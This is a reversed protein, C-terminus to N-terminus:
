PAAPYYTGVNITGDPLTFARYEIVRGEVTVRGWFAGTESAEKVAQQVHKAIASEAAESTLGTGELHRAGHAAKITVQRLGAAAEEGFRAAGRATEPLLEASGSTLRALGSVAARAGQSISGAAREATLVLWEGTAEVVAGGAVVLTGIGVAETAGWLREAFSNRLDMSVAAGDVAAEIGFTRATSDVLPGGTTLTGSIAIEAVNRWGRGNSGLDVDKHYNLGVRQSIPMFGDPDLMNIPDNGSYAYLNWLAPLRLDPVVTDPTLFRTLSDSYQRAGFDYLGTVPDRHKGQYSGELEACPPATKLGGFPFYEYAGLVNGDEDLTLLTSGRHDPVHWRITSGTAPDVLYFYDTMTAYAGSDTYSTAITSPDLTVFSLPPGGVDRRVRFSMSCSAAPSWTLAVNNGNDDVRLGAVDDSVGHDITAVLLGAAYIWDTTPAAVGGADSRYRSLRGLVDEHFDTLVTGSALLRTETIRGEGDYYYDVTGDVRRVHNDPTYTYTRGGGSM